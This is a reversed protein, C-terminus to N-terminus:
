YNSVPAGVPPLSPYQGFQHMPIGESPASPPQNQYAPVASVGSSVHNVLPVGGGPVKRAREYLIVFAKLRGGAVFCVVYEVMVIVFVIIASVFLESNGEQSTFDYGRSEGVNSDEQEKSRFNDDSTGNQDISYSPLEAKDATNDVSLSSGSDQLM